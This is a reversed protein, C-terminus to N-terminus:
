FVNDTLLPPFLLKQGAKKLFSASDLPLAEPWPHPSSTGARFHKKLKKDFKKQFFNSCVITQQIKFINLDM